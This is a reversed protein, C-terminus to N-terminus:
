KAKAEKDMVALLAAKCIAEPATDCDDIVYFNIEAAYKGNDDTYVTINFRDKLRNVLKWAEEIDSSYLPFPKYKDDRPDFAFNRRYGNKGISHDYEPDIPSFTHWGMVKEAVDADLFRGVPLNMVEERTM